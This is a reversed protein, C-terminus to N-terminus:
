KVCGYMDPGRKFTVTMDTVNVEFMDRSDGWHWETYDGSSMDECWPLGNYPKSLPLEARLYAVVDSQAGASAPVEWVEIGDKAGSSTSGPPLALDPLLQSHPAAGGATTTVAAPPAAAAPPATTMQTTPSSPPATPSSCAALAVALLVFTTVKMSSSALGLERTTTAFGGRHGPSKCHHCGSTDPATAHSAMAHKTAASGAVRRPFTTTITIARNM